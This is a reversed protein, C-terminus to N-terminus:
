SKYKRSLISMKTKQKLGDNYKVEITYIYGKTSSSGTYVVDAYGNKPDDCAKIEGNPLAQVVASAYLSNFDLYQLCNEKGTCEPDIQKIMCKAHSDGLVSSIGRRIGQKITDYINVTNEKYNQFEVNTYKLGCFWTLGPTSFTYSPDIEHYELCMDRFVEFVDVSLFVDTKLYLIMYDEFTNCVTNNWCDLAQQYVNDKIGGPKM